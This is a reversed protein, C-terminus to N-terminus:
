KKIILKRKTKETKKETTKKETKEQQTEEEQSQIGNKLNKEGDVSRVKRFVFYRNLFSITKENANMYPAEKLNHAKEINSDIENIMKQFLSDFLDSAM